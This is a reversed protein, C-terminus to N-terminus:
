CLLADRRVKPSIESTEKQTESSVTAGSSGKSCTGSSGSDVKEKVKKPKIKHIRCM